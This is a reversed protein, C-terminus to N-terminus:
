ENEYLAKSQLWLDKLIEKAVLRHAMANQHGASRPSGVLAPKGKPGCRVCEAPHLSDAYKERAARYVPEYPSTKFKPIASAIVWTRKRADESWNSKQGRTRKPAAGGAVHFGCYAWLESVTRPRDHLDNWYPDGIAALLRATQKLGLGARGQVFKGLPHRKMAHELNKTADKEAQELQAVTAVLKAVEPNDVSLGFGRDEGDKDSETRTLIRVRNANAIRVTELDDLVEALLGLVPDRLFGGPRAHSSQADFMAQDTGTSTPEVAACGPHTDPHDQGSDFNPGSVAPHGQTDCHGQGDTSTPTGRDRLAQTASQRQVPALTPASM